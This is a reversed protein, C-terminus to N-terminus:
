RCVSISILPVGDVVTTKGAGMSTMLGKRSRASFVSSM